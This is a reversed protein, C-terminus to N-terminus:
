RQTTISSKHVSFVSLIQLRSPKQSPLRSWQDQLTQFYVDKEDKGTEPPMIGVRKKKKELCMMTLWLSSGLLTYVPFIQFHNVQSTHCELSVNQIMIHFQKIEPDLDDSTKFLYPSTSYWLFALFTIISIPLTLMLVRLNQNIQFEIALSYTKKRLKWRNVILLLVTYCLSILTLICLRDMLEKPIMVRKDYVCHTCTRQSIDIWHYWSSYAFASGAVLLSLVHGLSAKRNEYGRGLNQTAVTRELPIAFLLLAFVSAFMNKTPKSSM